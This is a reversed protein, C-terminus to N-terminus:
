RLKPVTAGNEVFIQWIAIGCLDCAILLM